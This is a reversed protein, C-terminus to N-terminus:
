TLGMRIFFEVVNDHGELAALEVPSNGGNDESKLDYGLGVLRMVEPLDGDACAQHLATRGFKGREEKDEMRWEQLDEWDEDSVDSPQSSYHEQLEKIRSEQASNVNIDEIIMNELPEGACDMKLVFLEFKEIAAQKKGVSMSLKNIRAKYNELIAVSTDYIM